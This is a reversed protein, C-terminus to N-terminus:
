FNNIADLISSLHLNEKVIIKESIQKFKEATRQHNVIFYAKKLWTLDEADVLSIFYRASENSTVLFIIQDYLKSTEHLQKLDVNLNERKYCEGYDVIAGKSQLLRKLTERGHKGRIILINKSKIDNFIKNQVLHESDYYQNPSYIDRKYQKYLAKKTVPGITSLIINKPLKLANHNMREGFFHAANSSIFIIHHYRNLQKLQFDFLRYDELEFIEILPFEIPHINTSTLLENILIQNQKKPRTLVLAINSKNKVLQNHVNM